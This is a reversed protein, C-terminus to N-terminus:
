NRIQDMTCSEPHRDPRMRILRAGHGMFDCLTLDTTVEVVIRHELPVPRREEGGWRDRREPRRGAFGTGGILPALLEYIGRQDKHIPARGVYHLRGQAAYLRLLFEEVAHGSKTLHLGGVVCDLTYWVKFNVMARKGPQYPLSRTVAPNGSGGDEDPPAGEGEPQFSKMSSWAKALTGNVSFNKDLLLPAVERHDLIAALFMRSIGTTLLRNRNKTFVTPVWVPDEM